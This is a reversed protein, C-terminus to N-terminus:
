SRFLFKIIDGDNVIYEAGEIRLRGMERIKKIDGITIMDNYSIVEAKIFGKEMDSHIRGAAKRAGKGRELTWGQTIGGEITYFVILNLIEMCLKILDKIETKELNYLNFISEKEDDELKSVEEELLCSIAIYKEKIDCMVDIWKNRIGIEGIDEPNINLVLIYPKSTLLDFGEISVVEDICLFDKIEMGKNLLDISREITYIKDEAKTDKKGKISTVLKEKKKELVEIDSLILETRLVNFDDVPKAIESFADLVFILADMERIHALFKNGLGEGKHAGEVIGAIDVVKISPYRIEVGGVIEFIKILREDELVAYGVNPEITTFPYSDVKAGSRTLTNFLTTKGANPLGVIGLKL